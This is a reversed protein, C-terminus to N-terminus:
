IEFPKSESTQRFLQYFSFGLFAFMLLVKLAFSGFQACKFLPSYIWLDVCYGSSKMFWYSSFMITTWLVAILSLSLFINRSLIYFIMAFFLLIIMNGIIGALWSLDAYRVAFAYILTSQVSFAFIAYLICVIQYGKQQISSLAIWSDTGRIKTSELHYITLMVMLIPTFTFINITISDTPYLFSILILILTILSVTPLGTRIKQVLAFYITSISM